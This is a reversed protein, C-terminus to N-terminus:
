YRWLIELPALPSDVYEFRWELRAAFNLVVLPEIRVLFFSFPVFHVFAEVVPVTKLDFFPLVLTSDIAVIPSHAVVVVVVVMYDM